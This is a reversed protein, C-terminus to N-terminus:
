AITYQIFMVVIQKSSIDLTLSANYEKVDSGDGYM